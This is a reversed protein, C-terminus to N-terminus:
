PISVTYINNGVLKITPLWHQPFNSFLTLLKAISVLRSGLQLSTGPGIVCDKLHLDGTETSLICEDFRCEQFHIGDLNIRKRLFYERYKTLQLASSLGFLNLPSQLLGQSQAPQGLLAALAGPLSSEPQGSQLYTM